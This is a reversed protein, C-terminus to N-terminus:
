WGGHLAVGGTANGIIPSLGLRDVSRPSTSPATLYLVLGTATLAGGAVFAITSATAAHRASTTSTVGLPTCTSDTPCDSKADNNDSRAILGFTTGVILGALGVAGTVLGAARQGSGHTVPPPPPPPAPAPPAPPAPAPPAVVAEEPGDALAPLPPVEVSVQAAVGELSAQGRWAKRGAATADVSHVGPDVPIPVGWAARGIAEGDRRIQLDARDSSAPVVITLMPLKPELEAAKRRALQAREAQDSNQAATAAEKYTVWASALQGNREYCTALNLLTGTGPDLRQSEALKPCAEALRGSAMLDRGQKFLAEAAAQDGSSQANAPAAGSALAAMAGLSIARAGWNRGRPGSPGSVM